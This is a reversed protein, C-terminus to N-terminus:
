NEYYNRKATYKIHTLKNLYKKYFAKISSDNSKFVTKFIQKQNQNIQPHRNYDV